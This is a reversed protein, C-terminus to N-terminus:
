ASVSKFSRKLKSLGVWEMITNKTLEYRWRIKKGPSSAAPMPASLEQPFQKPYFVLTEVEGVGEFSEKHREPLIGFFDGIYDYVIRTMMLYENAPLSNKLMRHVLIVDLGFLKEFREIKELECKGAHMVQKLQLNTAQHCANCTCTRLANISGLERTFAEFLGAIQAKVQTAVTSLDKGNARAYFFVADGELEAIKLPPKSAQMIAKLLKVVIQKSHSISIAQYKM